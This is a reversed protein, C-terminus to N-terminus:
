QFDHAVELLLVMLWTKSTKFERRVFHQPPLKFVLFRTFVHCVLKKPPKQSFKKMIYSVKNIKEGDRINM